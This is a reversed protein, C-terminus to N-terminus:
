DVDQAALFLSKGLATFFNQYPEPDEVAQLNYQANARVSTMTESRSRVTVTMKLEYLVNQTRGYKTGSVTGLILDANDLVFELDQLTAIVARLVKERDGTEFAKTQVSRLQVQSENTSLLEQEPNTQCGSLLMAILAALLLSTSKISFSFGNM